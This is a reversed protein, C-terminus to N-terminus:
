LSMQALHQMVSARVGVTMLPAILLVHKEAGEQRSNAATRWLLDAPKPAFFANVLHKLTSWIASQVLTSSLRPPSASVDGRRSLTKIFRFIKQRPTIELRPCM